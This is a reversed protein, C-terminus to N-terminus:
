AYLTTAVTAGASAISAASVQVLLSSETAVTSASPITVALDFPVAVMVAFAGLPLLLGHVPCGSGAHKGTVRIGDQVQDLQNHLLIAPLGDDACLLVSHYRCREVSVIRADQAILLQVLHLFHAQM